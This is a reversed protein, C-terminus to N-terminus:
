YIDLVPDEKFIEFMDKKMYWDHYKWIYKIKWKQRYIFIIIMVIRSSRVRNFSDFIKQHTMFSSMEFIKRDFYNHYFTTQEVLNEISLFIEDICKQTEKQCEDTKERFKRRESSRSNTVKM